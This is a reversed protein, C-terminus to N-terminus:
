FGDKDPMDRSILNEPNLSFVNQGAGHILLTLPAGRTLAEQVSILGGCLYDLERRVVEPHGNLASYCIPLKRDRHSLGRVSSNVLGPMQHVLGM